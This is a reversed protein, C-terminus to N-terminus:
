VSFNRQYKFDQTLGAKVLDTLRRQLDREHILSGQVTINVTVDSHGGGGLGFRALANGNLPIIAEPGAEGMLHNPIMTPRDVIGGAASATVAAAAPLTIPALEPQLITVGALGALTLGAAVGGKHEKVWDGMKSLGTSVSTTVSSLTQQVSDITARASAVASAVDAKLQSLWGGVVSIANQVATEMGNAIQEGVSQGIGYLAPLDALAAAALTKPLDQFWTTLATGANRTWDTIPYLWQPVNTQLLVLIAATGTAIATQMDTMSGSVDTTAKAMAGSFARQAKTATTSMGTEIMPMNTNVSALMGSTATQVAAGATQMASATATSAGSMATSVSTLLSAMSTGVSAALTSLTTQITTAATTVGATAVLMAAVIATQIATASSGVKGAVTAATTGLTGLAGALGNVPATSGSAAVGLAGVPAVATAVATGAAGAASGMGDLATHASGAKDGLGTLGAVLLGIATTIGAVSTVKTALNGLKNGTDEVCKEHDCIGALGKVLGTLWGFAMTGGKFALLGGLAIGVMKLGTPMDGLDEGIKKLEGGADTFGKVITEGGKKFEGHIIEWMGVVLGAVIDVFAKWIHIATIIAAGLIQGIPAAVPKLRNIAQAVEKLLTAFAAWGNNAGKISSGTQQIGKGVSFLNELLTMLVRGIALLIDWFGILVPVLQEIFRRIQPMSDRVARAIQQFIGALAPMLATGISVKLGELESQLQRQARTYELVSMVGDKGMVVGAKEAEDTLQKLGARGQNLIPIMSKGGRGFLMMSAELKGMGDPMTKFKDAVDGLLNEFTKVKGNADMVNIGLQRFPDNGGTGHKGGGGVNRMHMTLRSMSNALEDSSMGLQQAAYRYKSASEASIGLTQALKYVEMGAKQAGGIVETFLAKAGLAIGLSAAVRKLTNLSNTLGSLAGAAQNQASIILQLRAEADAM